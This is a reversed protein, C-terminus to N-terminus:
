KITAEIRKIIKEKLGQLDDANYIITNVQKVDFHLGSEIAEKNCIHIVEKGLGLAYGAEYYAGNNHHSLEAIVFRSEQIQYLMEPVIQGNYQVEDILVPFYGAESIAQKLEKRLEVTDEGFKMAVFVNKNNTQNKQLEDIRAWGKPTIMPYSEQAWKLPSVIGYNSFSLLNTERFYQDIYDVQQLVEHPVYEQENEPRRHKIFYIKALDDYSVKITEGMYETKEAFYLLIKDMREAFSKPYWAEVMERSLFYANGIQGKFNEFLEKSGIFPNQKGDRYFLYSVLHDRQIDLVQVDNEAFWLSSDAIYIGCNPCKFVYVLDLPDNFNNSIEIHKQGCIPCQNEGNRIISGM